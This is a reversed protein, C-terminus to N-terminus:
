GYIVENFCAIQVLQNATDCDIEDPEQNILCKILDKRADGSFGPLEPRNLAHVIANEIAQRDIVHLHDEDWSKVALAAIADSLDEDATDVIEAHKAWYNIGIAASDVIAEFQDDNLECNFQMTITATSM